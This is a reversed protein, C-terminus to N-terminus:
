HSFTLVEEALREHQKRLEEEAELRAAEVKDPSSMLPTGLSGSPSDAFVRDPAMAPSFGRATDNLQM